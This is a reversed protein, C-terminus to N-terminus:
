SIWGWTREKKRLGMYQGLFKM